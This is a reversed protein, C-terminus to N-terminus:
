STQIFQVRIHDHLVTRYRQLTNRLIISDPEYWQPPQGYSYRLAYIIYYNTSHIQSSLLRLLYVAAVMFVTKLTHSRKETNNAYDFYYFLYLIIVIM